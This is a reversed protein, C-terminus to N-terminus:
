PHICMTIASTVRLYDSRAPLAAPRIAKRDTEKVTVRLPSNVRAAFSKVYANWTAADPFDLGKSWGAGAYYVFPQGAKLGAVTLAHGEAQKFQGGTNAAWVLAVPIFGPGDGESFKEWLTAWNSGHALISEDSHIILGAAATFPEGGTEFRSEFRNLNAGLDLSVRKVESVTKGNANWPAYTLEFTFRIPGTALVKWSKFCRAAWLKGDSWIAAGGCGRNPGARYNDAAQGDDHHYDPKSNRRAYMSEIIPTRVHKCWVDIGSGTKDGDKAQLAPGYMRFAIRDNEWAFDDAREPVFRGYVKSEVKAPAGPTITFKKVEKPAFDSQFIVSGDGLLQSTIEAGAADRVVFPGARNLKVEITERARAAELDNAVEIQAAPLSAAAFLALAILKNM